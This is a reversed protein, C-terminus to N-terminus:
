RELANICRHRPASEIVLIRLTPYRLLFDGDFIRQAGVREIRRVRRKLLLVFPRQRRSLQGVEYDDIAINRFNWRLCNAIGSDVVGDDAPADDVLAAGPVLAVSCGILLLATAKKRQFSMFFSRTLSMSSRRKIVPSRM